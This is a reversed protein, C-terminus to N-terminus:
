QGPVLAQRQQEAFRAIAAAGARDCPVCLLANVEDVAEPSLPRATVLGLYTGALRLDPDVKELEEQYNALLYLPSKWAPSHGPAITARVADLRGLNRGAMRDGADKRAPTDACWSRDAAALRPAQPGAGTVPGAAPASATPVGGDGGDGGGSYRNRNTPGPGTGQGQNGHGATPGPGAGLGQAAAPVATWAVAVLALAM